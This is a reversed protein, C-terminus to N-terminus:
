GAPTPADERLLRKRKLEGWFGTPIPASMQKLNDELHALSRTGPIITPVCSHALVFQLAAAKLAVGFEKCM